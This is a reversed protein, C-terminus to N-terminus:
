HGAFLDIPVSTGISPDRTVYGLDTLAGLTTDSLYTQENLVVYGTMLDNSMVTGGPAFLTESWHSGATGTGGSSEVPVGVNGLTSYAAKANPGIFLGGVVLGKLDFINGSFGLAHVMEHLVVDDWTNFWGGSVSNSLDTADLKISATAPLYNEPDSANGGFDNSDRRATITTQALVNGLVPSGSGDIRGTSVSIVIDDIFSGNFTVDQIDATIISSLYDAAWRVINAQDTTWSGSFNIQINFEDTDSITSNGSIYTPPTTGGSGGGGGGPKAAAKADVGNLPWIVDPWAGSTIITADMASDTAGLLHFKKWVADSM